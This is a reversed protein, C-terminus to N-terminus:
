VFSFLGALIWMVISIASTWMAFTLYTDRLITATAWQAYAEPPRFDKPLYLWMETKRHDKTLAERSKLILILAMLTTLMGGAQFSARANFSLGVMVCFIALSGFGCARLVTEFAVRRMHEM